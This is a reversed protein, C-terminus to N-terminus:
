LCICQYDNLIYKYYEKTLSLLQIYWMKEWSTSGLFINSSNM